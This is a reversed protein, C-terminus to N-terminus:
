KTKTNPITWDRGPAEKLIDSSLTQGEPLVYGLDFNANNVGSEVRFSDSSAITGDGSVLCSSIIRLEEVPTTIALQEYATAELVYEGPYVHAFQYYGYANTLTEYVAEGNQMLRVSVGPLRHESGDLLGNKNEDLWALDGVKAPKIYLVDRDLQHQAMQLSIVGSLGNATDEIVSAGSEYSPDNPRVYIMGAPLTASVTYEGPWLGDFHYSGDLSTESVQLAQGNQYLTVTVGAIPNRSGNEDLWATGGISTRSVLGTTLGTITQGESVELGEQVMATGKLYFTSASANASSSQEPLDFRVSYSGPRVNEFVFGHSGSVTEAIVANTEDTLMLTVGEMIWESDAQEGDQNEDMWIEGAISAPKVAGVLKDKRSILVQWPCSLTEEKAAPLALEDMNHSFIFGDPLQMSLTYDGPRLGTLSFSGDAETVTEESSASSNLSISAGALTEEGSDQVGNANSDRFVVGEFSGLTVAGALGRTVAEGMAVNFAKTVTELGDHAITNGGSVTKSMECHEPLVYTLTYKGPMVGDFFYSGDDGPTLRLDIEGDESLLRVQASVMGIEGEDWLGNDNADHFFSGSVTAAPLMGANVGTIEEAMAITMPNSVGWDGVLAAIHSGGKEDPRLRTFGFDNKRQVELTYTGPMIGSLTYAGKAASTTAAVEEGAENKLRIKVGSLTKESGNIKGNYDSDQYITGSITAGRAVGILAQAEGGSAINLPQIANERRGTRHEFLNVQDATGNATVTFISGDNPLIARLRYDGGRLNELRYSGDEGTVTKGMSDNNSLKIAELTVGEYGPEGEDWLGNYNLDFFATGVIAGKQVAGINKNSVSSTSKVTFEREFVEGSFISRLDGGYTSYRAYLMEGPLDATVTYRDDPLFDFYYEGSEDTTISRKTGTRQGNLYVTVGAVGPEGEDMVGNNNMDEFAKGSFFGVARAGVSLSSPASSSLTIMGASASHSDPALVTFGYGDPVSFVVEYEGPAATISAIGKKSTVSRAVVQGDCVLDATLNGFPNEYKGQEGNADADTFATITLTAAEVLGVDAQVTEGSLTAELVAYGDAFHSEGGISSVAMEQGNLSCTIRYDGAALGNFVYMGYADTVTQSVAEWADANMRELNLPVGSMLQESSDCVANQNADVYACGSIEEGLACTCGLLLLMMAFLVLMQKKM